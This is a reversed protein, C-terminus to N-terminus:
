RAQQSGSERHALRSRLDTGVVGGTQQHALTTALQARNHIGLKQYARGLHAEITKPSLFLQTAAQRVTAGEAVTLAVRLEQPTLEEASSRGHRARTFVGAARLEQHARDAWSDAAFQEFIALASALQERADTRRRLRRLREGYCLQTRAREFMSPVRDHLALASQFEAEFEDEGALLGRCRAATALGWLSRVQEARHQLLDAAMRAEHDRGAAHLAEVLGPEYPVTPPNGLGEAEAERACQELQEVAAPINGLGLELLGLVSLLHVELSRHGRARALSFAEAVVTRCEQERGQAASVRALHVLGWARYSTAGALEAAESARARARTWRGAHFDSHAGHGLVFPLKGLAGLERADRIARELASGRELTGDSELDGETVLGRTLSLEIAAAAIPGLELSAAAAFAAESGLEEPPLEGRYTAATDAAFAALRQIAPLCADALERARRGSAVAARLDGIMIDTTTADIMMVTARAPDEDAVAAAGDWFIEHSRVASGLLREVVGSLHQFDARILATDALPLGANILDSAWQVKGSIVAFTSAALLRRARAGPKPTLAAAREYARTATALGGRDAAREAAEELAAAVHEDIGSAAAALHWARRNVAEESGAALAAHVARRRDSPATQYVVSRVLPHRFRVRGDTLTILGAREAADFASGNLRLARLAAVVTGPEDLESAAAILLAERAEPPLQDLRRAFAREVGGGVPLPRELPESGALQGPSLATSFELLALPNGGAVRVLQEAVEPAIVRGRRETLLTKASQESLGAITQEPLGIPDFASPEAVRMAFLAVIGEMHLRRAAFALAEASSPDLWHADDVVVLLPMDEAAAAILSLTAACVALPDGPVPPGLALAGGLVARQRDPLGEVLGLVPRALEQLGSFALESESEVGRARLLRFGVALGVASDLLVSKGIGPEGRLVLATSRGMRAGALLDALMALESERGVLVTSM